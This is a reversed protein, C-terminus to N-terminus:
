GARYTGFSFQRASRELNAASTRASPKNQVHSDQRRLEPFDDAISLRTFRNPGRRSRPTDYYFLAAGTIKGDEEEITMRAYTLGELKGSWLGVIASNNAPAAGAWAAISLLVLLRRM